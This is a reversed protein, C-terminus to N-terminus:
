RLAYVSAEGNRFVPKFFEPHADFKAVGRPYAGREAADVYLYDIGLQRALEWAQKADDGAYIRRVLESKEAYEPINLLPIANGAAM